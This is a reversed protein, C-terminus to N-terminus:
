PAKKKKMQAILLQGAPSKSFAIVDNATGATGKVLKQAKKYKSPSYNLKAYEQELRMRTILQRLEDNTLSATTSSRAKQRYAAAKVADESPAQGKGGKTKVVGKGAKTTVTVPTPEGSSRASRDKRVGWRMGKVGAHELIKEVAGRGTDSAGM